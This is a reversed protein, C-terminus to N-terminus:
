QKIAKRVIRKHGDNITLLYVGAALNEKRIITHNIGANGKLGVEYMVKGSVDSLQIGIHQASKLSIELNWGDDGPNPFIRIDGDNLGITGISTSAEMNVCIDACITCTDEETNAITLCATYVGSETYTHTPDFSASSPSGDGFSWEYWVATGAAAPEFSVTYSNTTHTHSFNANCDQAAAQAAPISIAALAFLFQRAPTKM